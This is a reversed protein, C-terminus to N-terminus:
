KGAKAKPKAPLAYGQDSSWVTQGDQAVLRQEAPTGVKEAKAARGAASTIAKAATAFRRYDTWEDTSGAARYQLMPGADVLKQQTESLPTTRVREAFVAALGTPEGEAPAKAKTAKTAKSGKAKTAKRDQAEEEFSRAPAEGLVLWLKTSKDVKDLLWGGAGLVGVQNGVWEVTGTGIPPFMASKGRGYYTVTQGHVLGHQRATGRQPVPREQPGKAPGPNTAVAEAVMAEVPDADDKAPQGEPAPYEWGQADALEEDTAHDRADREVDDADAMRAEDDQATEEDGDDEFAPVLEGSDEFREADLQAAGEAHHACREPGMDGACDTDADACAAHPDTDDATAAVKAAQTATFGEPLGQAEDTARQAQETEWEVAAVVRPTGPLKKGARRANAATTYRTVEQGEHSVLVWPRPTGPAADTTPAPATSETM